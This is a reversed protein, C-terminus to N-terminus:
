CEGTSSPSGSYHRRHVFSAFRHYLSPYYGLDDLSAPRNATPDEENLCDAPEAADPGYWAGGNTVYCPLARPQEFRWLDPYAGRAARYEPTEIVPIPIGISWKEQGLGTTPGVPPRIMCATSTAIHFDDDPASRQTLSLGMDPSGSGSRRHCCARALPFPIAVVIDHAGVM